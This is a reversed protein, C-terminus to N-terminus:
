ETDKLMSQIENYCEQMEDELKKINDDLEEIKINFKNFCSDELEKINSKTTEIRGALREKESKKNEISERLEDISKIQDELM